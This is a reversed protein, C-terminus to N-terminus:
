YTITPQEPRAKVDIIVKDSTISCGNVTTAVVTYSGSDTLTVNTLKLISSTESIATGDKFWQYTVSTTINPDTSVVSSTLTVNNRECVTGSKKEDDSIYGDITTAITPKAPFEYIAIDAEASTKSCGLEASKWIPVITLTYKGTSAVSNLTISADNSIITNDGVKRWNYIYSLGKPVSTPIGSGVLTVKNSKDFCSNNGTITIVPTSEPVAFVVVPKSADSACGHESIAVVVYSGPTNADYSQEKAEAIINGDHYWQYSAGTISSTLKTSTGNCIVTTNPDPIITQAIISGTSLLLLVLASYIYRLNKM